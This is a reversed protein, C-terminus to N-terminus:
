PAPPGAVISREAPPELEKSVVAAAPRDLRRSLQYFVAAAVASGGAYYWPLNSYADAKPNVGVTVFLAAGM